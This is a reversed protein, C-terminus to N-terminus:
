KKNWLQLFTDRLSNFGSPNQLLVAAEHNSTFAKQTINSSGLLLYGNDVLLYKAHIIRSGTVGRIEIGYKQLLGATNINTIAPSKTQININTLIKIDVARNKARILETHIANVQLDKDKRPFDFRFTSIIIEAAARGILAHMISFIAKDTYTHAIM